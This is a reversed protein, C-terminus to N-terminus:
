LNCIAKSENIIQQKKYSGLEIQNLIDPDDCIQKVLVINKELLRTKEAGSAFSFQTIPFLKYKEVLDRLGEGFPYNWGIVKINSCNAFDLADSTVKTNTILIASSFNHKDKLDDFRAKTYLAVHVDSRIGPKNHYKCEIFIKENQNQAIVDVEHNVCQGRLMSGVITKFGMSKLIESVYVEFPFGTPGIEMIARKLSYKAKYPEKSRILYEQVYKYIKSSPIGDYLRQKINELLEKQLNSPIGARNISNKLKEDSFEEISGDAKKINIM